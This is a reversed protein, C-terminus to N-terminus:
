GDKDEEKKMRENVRFNNNELEKKLYNRGRSIRAKITGIPRKLIQAIEEQSFGEMDKLIVPIRYRSPLSNLAERLSKSTEFDVPNRVMSSDDALFNQVEEFAVTAVRRMKKLETRGLNSAITYIWASLPAVPKYKNAKFFVRMFTEQALDSAKQYDGTMQWLFNVIKDKYIHVIKAFAMEDGSQVLRMLEQEEMRM